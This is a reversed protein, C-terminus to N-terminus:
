RRKAKKKQTQKENKKCGKGEDTLEIKVGSM